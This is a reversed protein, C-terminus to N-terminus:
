KTRYVFSVTTEEDIVLPKVFRYSTGTRPVDIAIPLVGVVKQKLDLVASSPAAPPPPPPMAAEKKNAV